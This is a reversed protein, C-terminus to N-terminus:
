RAAGGAIPVLENGKFGYIIMKGRPKDIIILTEDAGTGSTMITYAPQNNIMAARAPRENGALLIAALVLATFTLVAMWTSANKM